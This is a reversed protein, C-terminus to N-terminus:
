EQGFPNILRVKTLNHQGSLDMIIFGMFRSIPMKGNDNNQANHYVSYIRFFAISVVMYFVRM